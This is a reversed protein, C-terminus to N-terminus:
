SRVGRDRRKPGAVHAGVFPALVVGGASLDERYRREGHGGLQYSVRLAFRSRRERTGGTEMSKKKSRCPRRGVASMACTATAAFKRTPRAPLWTVKGCNAWSKLRASRRM